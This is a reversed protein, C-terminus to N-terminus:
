DTSGFGGETATIAGNSLVYRQEYVDAVGSSYGPDYDSAVAYGVEAHAIRATLAAILVGLLLPKPGFPVITLEIPARESGNKLLDSVVRCIGTSDLPSCEITEAAFSPRRAHSLIFENEKLARQDIARNDAIPLVFITYEPDIRKWVALTRVGEHGLLVLAIRRSTGAGKLDSRSVLPMTFPAFSPRGLGQKSHGYRLPSTYLVRLTDVGGRNLSLKVLAAIQIRTLCSMDLSIRLSDWRVARLHLESDLTRIAAHTDFRDLHLIRPARSTDIIEAHRVLSRMSREMPASTESSAKTAFRLILAVECEYDVLRRVVATSRRREFSAAAIFISDPSSGDITHISSVSNM